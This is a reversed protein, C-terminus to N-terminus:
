RDRRLPSSVWGALLQAPRASIGGISLFSLAIRRDLGPVAMARALMFTGIFLFLIPSTPPRNLPLAANVRRLAVDHSTGVM